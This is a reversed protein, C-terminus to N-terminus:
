PATATCHGAALDTRLELLNATRDQLAVETMAAVFGLRSDAVTHARSVPRGNNLECAPALAEVSGRCVGSGPGCVLLLGEESLDIHFNDCGPCGDQREGVICGGPGCILLLTGCPWDANRGPGVAVISADDSAYTAGGCGLSNGAYSVGYHTIAVDAVSGAATLGELSGRVNRSLQDASYLLRQAVSSSEGVHAPTAASHHPSLNTIRHAQTIGGVTLALVLLGISVVSRAGPRRRILYAGGRGYFLRRRM